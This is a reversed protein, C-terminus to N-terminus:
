VVDRLIRDVLQDDFSTEDMGPMEGLHSPERNLRPRVLAWPDAM